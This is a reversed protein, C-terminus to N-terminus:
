GNQSKANMTDKNGIQVIIEYFTKEPKGTRIKEYYDSIIRDKRTQKSNYEKLADDFLHHYAKKIDLNVFQINNSRRTSDVNEASFTRANHSISGKGLMISITETQMFAECLALMKQKQCFHMQTLKSFTVFTVSQFSSQLMATDLSKENM